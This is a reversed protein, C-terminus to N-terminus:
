VVHANGGLAKYDEFFRPYSKEVAGADKIEVPGRCRIAAVAAAMALRHDHVSDATGGTLEGGRVILGDPLEEAEGGLARLLAAVASLRDSEKLRLRAAHTFRTEGEACAAVVALIPLLDPIEEVSIEMGRLRGPCVTVADEEQRVEAGFRRLLSVVARDGQLSDSDLGTVTVGGGLAGAALFFAANSWDGEVRLTGPSALRQRGPIHYIGRETRIEAGFRRLAALTMEVYSSSALATTLTIVSDQEARPLALLLGTVYQSSVDGPLRFEGGRLCGEMALPLSDVSFSLGHSRLTDLLAGIPRNPLRGGGTFRAGGGLVAAVPLLFRLTSGSEGCDLLPSLPPSAAPTVSVAAGERRIEAGLTRLCRVTADIDQSSAPLNLVTPGDALVALILLRHAASKSPIARVAGKLPAPTIRVQM